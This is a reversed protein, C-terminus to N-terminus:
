RRAPRGRQSPQGLLRIFVRRVGTYQAETAVRSYVIASLGQRSVIAPSADALDKTSSITIGDDPGLPTGLTSIFRAHIDPVPTALCLIPPCPLYAAPLAWTLVFHSGDFGLDRSQEEIRSYSNPALLRDSKEGFFRGRIGDNASYAILYRNAGWAVVPEYGTAILAPAPAPSDADITTAFIENRANSWAALYNAGDTAVDVFGARHPEASVIRGGPDLLTGQSTIRAIWVQESGADFSVFVVLSGAGNSAIAYKHHIAQPRAIEFPLSNLLTGSPSVRMGMLRADTLSGERWIVVFNQGDFTIRPADKYADSTDLRIGRGDMSRGDSNLRAARIEIFEHEPAERWVTLYRDGGWAIAPSAQVSPSFTLAQGREEPTSDLAAGTTDTFAFMVDSSSRENSRRTDSWVFIVREGNTAASPVFQWGPATTLSVPPGDSSTQSPLRHIVIDTNGSYAWVPVLYQDGLGLIGTSVGAALARFPEIVRGTVDLKSVYLVENSSAGVGRSAVLYGNESAAAYLLDVYPAIQTPPGIIEGGVSVRVTFTGADTTFAVLYETGDPKAAASFSGPFAPPIELRKILQLNSNLLYAILVRGSGGAENSLILFSTGTSAVRNLSSSQLPLEIRAETITGQRSIRTAFRGQNTSIMVYDSGTWFLGAPHGLADPIPAGGPTRVTGDRSIITFRINSAPTADRSDHWVALFDIGDSAVLPSGQSLAAPQVKVDSAPFEPSLTAAFLPISLLAALILLLAKM